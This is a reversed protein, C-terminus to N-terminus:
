ASLQIFGRAHWFSPVFLLPSFYLIFICTFYFMAYWNPPKNRPGCIGNKNGARVHMQFTFIAKIEGVFDCSSFYQRISHSATYIPLFKGANRNSALARTQLTSSPLLIKGTVRHWMGRWCDNKTVHRLFQLIKTYQRIYHQTFSVSATGARGLIGYWIM